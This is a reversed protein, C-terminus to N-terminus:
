GTDSPTRAPAPTIFGYGWLEARRMMQSFVPMARNAAGPRESMSAFWDKVKKRTVADVTLHGFAPLIHNRVMMRNTELTRPKRQRAQRELFEAAFAEMPHGPTRPGRNNKLPEIFTVILKRAENRAQPVTMDGAAASRFPMLSADARIPDSLCQEESLEDALELSTATGRWAGQGPSKGGFNCSNTVLESAPDQGKPVEAAATRAKDQPMHALLLAEYM